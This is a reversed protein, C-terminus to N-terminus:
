KVAPFFSVVSKQAASLAEQVFTASAWFMLNAGDTSQCEAASVQGDGDTDYVSAPCEPTDSIPDFWTGDSETTHFLGMFHGLEHAMTAGQMILDASSMRSMGGMTNVVVGSHETGQVLPPGPIGGAIGLVGLNSMSRVLFLNMYDNGAQSSLRFLEDMGDSQGNSNADSNLDVHTLRRATDDNLEIINVTGVSFGNVACIRKFEDLMAALNPDATGQYDPLAMIWVNVNITTGATKKVITYISVDRAAGDPSAYHTISYTWTGPNFAYDMSHPITFTQASYGQGQTENYGIPWTSLDASVMSFGNPDVISSIDMDSTDGGDAIITLSVAGAPVDVTYPGATEGAAMSRQEVLTTVETEVSAQEGGGGGGGACGAALAMIASAAMLKAGFGLRDFFATILMM